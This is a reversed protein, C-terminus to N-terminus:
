FEYRAGATFRWSNEYDGGFIHAADLWLKANQSISLDASIGADFWTQSGSFEESYPLTSGQLKYDRDASFEHLIDAKVYVLSDPLDNGFTFQYGARAGARGIFSNIDGLNAKVGGDSTFDDGELHICQFQVQPEVFLKNAFDFKWGSELSVGYFNQKIDSGISAGAANSVAYDSDIVGGKLVLDTYIGTDSLWTYYLSMAYRESDSGGTVGPIDINANTYDVSVGLIHKGSNTGVLRDYGIQIMNKDMEFANDWDLNSYTNRVWLGDNTDNVYRSEGRRDNFRDLDTALSYSAFVAAKMFGQYAGTANGKKTFYWYNLNSTFESETGYVFDLPEDARYSIGDHNTIFEANKDEVRAFYIRDGIELNSINAAEGDFVVLHTGTESSGTVVIYDSNSNPRFYDTSSNGAHSLDMKFIGGSGKLNGISVEYHRKAAGLEYKPLNIEIGTNPDTIKSSLKQEIEADVLNVIGGDLLTLNSISSNNFYIWEGGKSLTLNVTNKEDADVQDGYWFSDASSLILNITNKSDAPPNTGSTNGVDLDGVIQVKKGQVTITNSGNTTHVTNKASIAASPQISSRDGLAVIFVSETKDDFTLTSGGQVYLANNNNALGWYQNRGEFPVTNIVSFNGSVSITNGGEVNLATTTRNQTGSTNETIVVKVDSFTSSGNSIEVGENTTGGTLPGNIFPKGNELETYAFTSTIPAFAAALTLLSLSTISRLTRGGGRTNIKKQIHDCTSSHNIKHPM